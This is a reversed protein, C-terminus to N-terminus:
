DKSGKSLKDWFDTVFMVGKSMIKIDSCGEIDSGDTEHSCAMCRM